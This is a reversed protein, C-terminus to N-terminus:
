HSELESNVYPVYHQDTRGFLVASNQDMSAIARQLGHLSENVRELNIIFNNLQVDILGINKTVQSEIIQCM